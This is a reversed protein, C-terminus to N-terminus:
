FPFVSIFDIFFWGHLIYRKAILKLDRVEEQTELNVYACIFNLLLDLIFVAEVFSDFYTFFSQEENEAEGKDEFRFAVMFVSTVCSYGVFFLVVM